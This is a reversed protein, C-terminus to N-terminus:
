EVARLRNYYDLKSENPQQQWNLRNGNIANLPQEFKLVEDRNRIGVVTNHKIVDNRSDQLNNIQTNTVNLEKDLQKYKNKLDDLQISLLAAQCLERRIRQADWETCSSLM